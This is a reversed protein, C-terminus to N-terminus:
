LISRYVKETQEAILDWDYSQEIKIKAKKGMINWEDKKDLMRDLRIEFDCLSDQKFFLGDKKDEIVEKHPDIDSVLCTLGYSMAELLAIPLGELYSPLVFFLANSFLEEKLKGTVYGTFIINNEKKALSLLQNYYGKAGAGGGAVVLKISPHKRSVKRFAKILWDPRKEPVLRGMFLVYDKGKLGYKETICDPRTLGPIRVGNPIFIFEKHYKNTFYSKLTKSVVITKDPLYVASNECFKLFSKAFGSWKGAEWDLRHITCVLKKRLIKPIWSFFSPGLAHYHIIEYNQFLSHVSSNFSHIFADMHKDKITPTHILKVGKYRFLKKNMYWNRVYVDIEHGRRVLKRSLEDVHQEIGGFSAPIGKQGIYAIRMIEIAM